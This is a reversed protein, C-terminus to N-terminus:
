GKHIEYQAIQDDANEGATIAATNIENIRQKALAVEDAVSAQLVSIEANFGDIKSRLDNIKNDATAQIDTIKTDTQTNIQATDGALKKQTQNIKVDITNRESKQTEKLEAAAQEENFFSKNSLSVVPM